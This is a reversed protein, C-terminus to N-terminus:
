QPSVKLNVKHVKGKTDLQCSMDQAQLTNLAVATYCKLFALIYITSSSRMRQELREASCWM